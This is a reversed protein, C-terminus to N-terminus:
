QNSGPKLSNDYKDKTDLSRKFEIVTYEGDEKGGFITIDNKGGLDIDPSHPGFNGTSFEDDANVKGDKVYGIIIDADKMTKNPQVAMAIFGKTKAKVGIIMDKEDSFWSIEYNGNDYTQKGTYEGDSIVGDAKFELSPKAAISAQTNQQSTETGKAGLKFAILQPSPGLGVPFLIMDGCVAPWGNISGPAQYTWLEDGTKKNYAFIKGDFTSTFLIDNVVTAAGVNMSPFEKKWIEKGTAADLAIIEGTGKGLDFTSPDLSSPTYDVGLNLVPVYIIGDSYAMNTEVGGLPGPFVTTKGDPLQQLEDNQHKGVTAEWIIEGSKRDFAVVKGLKGSGFVLDKKTGSIEVSALIPSAQFDLDFLDHPKIQKFWDLKGDKTNLAVISNTYLNDGPRSSANPFKETGPWPAPNGIGWFSLGTKEDIAPTFWAGGGSNVEANGWIDKSDITNFSWLIKGTSEDLAYIIGMGGGTYFDANETGPVTSVFVKKDFVTLQIDIGVNDKDSLKTSWLEKGNMDLAAVEYHGKQLFVKNYGVAPGNPGYTALNYEKKWKIEGTKLDLAFLNSKLDQLYVVNDIIIPNTTAAGWEGVGPIDFSWQIGLQGVNKSNISSTLDERTNSYDKNPLPWQASSKSVEPPVASSTTCSVVSFLLSVIILGIVTVPIIKILTKTKM